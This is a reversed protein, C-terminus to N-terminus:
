MNCIFIDCGCRCFFIYVVNQNLTLESYKAMYIGSAYKCLMSRKNNVLSVVHAKSFGLIVFADVEFM